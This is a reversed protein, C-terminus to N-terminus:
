YYNKLIDNLCKLIFFIIKFIVIFVCIIKKYKYFFLLFKLIVFILIINLWCYFIFKCLGNVCILILIFLLGFGIM